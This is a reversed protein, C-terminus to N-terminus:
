TFVFYKWVIFAAIGHSVAAGWVNGFYEYLYGWLAGSLSILGMFIFSEKPPMILLLYFHTLGFLIATIWISANKPLIKSIKQQIFGRWLLEEGLGVLLTCFLLASLFGGAGEGGTILRFGLEGQFSIGRGSFNIVDKLKAINDLPYNTMGLLKLIFGGALALIIGLIIGSTVSPLLSKKKLGLSEVGLGLIGVQWIFVASFTFSFSGYIGLFLLVLPVIVAAICVSIRIVPNVQGTM